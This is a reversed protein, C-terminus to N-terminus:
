GQRRGAEPDLGARLRDLEAEDQRLLRRELVHLVVPPARGEALDIVLDRSGDLQRLARVLQRRARVAPAFGGDTGPV